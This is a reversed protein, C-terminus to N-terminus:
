NELALWARYNKTTTGGANDDWGSGNASSFVTRSVHNDAWLTNMKGQHRKFQQANGRATANTLQPSEYNLDLDIPLNNADFAREIMLVYRSPTRIKIMPVLNDPLPPGGIVRSPRTLRYHTSQISNIWGGAPAQQAYCSMQNGDGRKSSFYRDYVTNASSTSVQFWYGNSDAIAYRNKNEAAYLNIVTGWQRMNSLCQTQRANDRVAGVTPILIAALIGIIAIVTLLEILTFGFNARLSRRQLPLPVHIM